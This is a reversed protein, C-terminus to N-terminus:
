LIPRGIKKPKVFQKRDGSAFVIEYGPLAYVSPAM